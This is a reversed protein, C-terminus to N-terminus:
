RCVPGCAPAANCSSGCIRAPSYDYLPYPYCKSNGTYCCGGLVGAALAAFVALKVFKM